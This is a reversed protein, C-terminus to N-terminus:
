ERGTRLRYLRGILRMANNFDRIRPDKSERVEKLIDRAHDPTMQEPRINSKAFYKESLEKFATNYDYHAPGWFNGVPAGDPTRRLWAPAKGITSDKFVKLTEPKLNWKEYVGKPAEHHGGPRYYPQGFVDTITGNNSQALRVLGDRYRESAEAPVGAPKADYAQEGEDTWRGGERTGAPVRAQDPRYKNEYLAFPHGAQLEPSTFKRWDSRVFLHADPRMWRKLEYEIAEPKIPNM